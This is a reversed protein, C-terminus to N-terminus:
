LLRQTSFFNLKRAYEDPNKPSVLADPRPHLADYSRTLLFRAAAMACLVPLATYEAPTLPRAATYGQMFAQAAETNPTGDAHMAWANLAIALDYVAADVCAFYVDILGSVNDGCFLVNDPFYDGHIITQPLPPLNQAAAIATHVQAPVVGGAQTVSHALATIGQANLANTRQAFVPMTHWQALAAGAANCQALTAGAAVGTGQLFSVILAPRQCLTQVAAGQKNLMPQPCLVGHARATQMVQVFYPLDAPNTRREFLTLIYRGQSTTLLFNSNETGEAIGNCSLVTGINYDNVFNVAQAMSLPTFVAM